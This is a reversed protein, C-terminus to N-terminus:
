QLHKIQAAHRHEKKISPSPFQNGQNRTANGETTANTENIASAENIANTPNVGHIYKERERKTGREISCMCM